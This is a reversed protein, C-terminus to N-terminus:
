AEVEDARICAASHMDDLSQMPPSRRDCAAVHLACRPGFRCGEISDTPDPPQGPISALRKVQPRDLRPLSALLGATYPHRPQSLVTATPGQEVVRGAYMVVIRDCVASVVSVDHSVLILACGADRQLRRLLELYQGQITVDLATTPEDALILRPECALAIASGVRQRMGGSLEHAYARARHAPDPIRVAELLETARTAGERRSVGFHVRLPEAIQGGIRHSPNLCSMPDQLLMGIERGRIRRMARPGLTLLNEGQFWIEGGSMAAGQPLLGVIAMCTMSKGCGSEGVVGIAEGARVDFEVGRLVEATGGRTRAEVRLDRVSLLVEDAGM